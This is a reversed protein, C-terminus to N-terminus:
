AIESIAKFAIIKKSIREKLFDQLLTIGSTILNPDKFAYGLLCAGQLKYMLDLSLDSAEEIYGLTYFQAEIWLLCDMMLKAALNHLTGREKALEQCLTGVRGGQLAILKAEQKAHELFYHLRVKPSPEKDLQQFFTQQEVAISKLVAIGIDSKEKFYYYINGLAVDAELAIDALTTINLGQQYILKKAADILRNRKDSKKPM